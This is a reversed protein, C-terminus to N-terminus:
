SHLRSSHVISRQTHFTYINFYAFIVDLTTDGSEVDGTEDIIMFPNLPSFALIKNVINKTYIFFFFYECFCRSSKFISDTKIKYM